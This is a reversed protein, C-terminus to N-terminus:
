KVPMDALRQKKKEIYDFFRDADLNLILDEPYGIEELMQLARPVKGVAAAFHADSGVSVTAGYRKCLKAIEVCREEAGPKDFSHENFEM